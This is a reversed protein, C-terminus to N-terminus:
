NDDDNGGPDLPPQGSNQRAERAQNQMQDVRQRDMNGELYGDPWGDEFGDKYDQNQDTMSEPDLPYDPCFDSNDNNWRWSEM